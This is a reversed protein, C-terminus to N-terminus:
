VGLEKKMQLAARAGQPLNYNDLTLAMPQFYKEYFPMAKEVYIAKRKKQEQEDETWYVAQWLGNLEILEYRDDEVTKWSLIAETKEKWEMETYGEQFISGQSYLKKIPMKLFLEELAINNYRGLEWVENPVAFIDNVNEFLDPYGEVLQGQDNHKGALLIRCILVIENNSDEVAVMRLISESKNPLIRVLQYLDARYFEQKWSCLLGFWKSFCESYEMANVLELYSQFFVSKITVDESLNLLMEITRDALGFRGEHITALWGRMGSDILSQPFLAQGVLLLESHFEKKGNDTLQNYCNLLEEMVDAACKYEKIEYYARIAERHLYAQTVLNNGVDQIYIKYYEIAQNHSEIMNCALMVAGYFIEPYYHEVQINSSHFLDFTESALTLAERYEGINIYEVVLQARSHMDLPNDRIMEKLPSINRYSHLIRAQDTEFIYGSHHIVEQIKCSRLGKPFLTEHIKGEYHIGSVMQFLYFTECDNHLKMEKNVYNYEACYACGYEQYIGSKFFRITGESEADLWEDDDLRMFWQGRCAELGANRAAAFDNCWPFKVIRDTYEDLIELMEEDCGTDVMVLESPIAKRLHNLSELCRRVEKKRNSTMICISLLPNDVNYNNKGM